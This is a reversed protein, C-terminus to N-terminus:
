RLKVPGAAAGVASPTSPSSRRLSPLRTRLKSWYACTCHSLSRTVRVPPSRCESTRKEERSLKMVGPLGSSLPEVRNEAVVGTSPRTYWALSVSFRYAAAPRPKSVGVKLSSAYRGSPLAPRFKAKFMM